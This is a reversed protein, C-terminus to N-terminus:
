RAKSSRISERAEDMSGTKLLYDALLFLIICYFSINYVCIAIVILFM